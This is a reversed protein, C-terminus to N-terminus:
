VRIGSVWGAEFRTNRVDAALAAGLAVTVGHELLASIQTQETLPPGALSCFFCDSLRIDSTPYPYSVHTSIGM